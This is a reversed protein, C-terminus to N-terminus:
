RSRVPEAEIVKGSRDLQVIYHDSRLPYFASSYGLESSCGARPLYPVRDACGGEWDPGGLISEAAARDMGLQIRAFRGPLQRDHWFGWGAWVMGAGVVALLATELWRRPGPLPEAM